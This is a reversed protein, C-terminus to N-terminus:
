KGSNQTIKSGYSKFVNLGVTEEYIEFKGTGRDMIMLEGRDTVSVTIQSSTKPLVLAKQEGVITQKIKPYYYGLFFASLAVTVIMIWNGLSKMTKTAKEIMENSIFKPKIM